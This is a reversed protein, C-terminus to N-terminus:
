QLHYIWFTPGKAYSEILEYHTFVYQKMANDPNIDDAYIVWTPKKEVLYNVVVDNISPNDVCMWSQSIAYPEGCGFDYQLYIAANVDLCFVEGDQFDEEPITESILAFAAQNKSYSADELGVSYYCIVFAVGTCVSAVLSIVAIGRSLKKGLGQHEYYVFFCTLDLALLPIASLWYNLARAFYVNVVGSVMSAIFFLLAVDKSMRKRLYRWLFASFAMWLVVVAMYLYRMNDLHNGVYAFNQFFVATIMADFFHYAFAFPLVIAYPIAFGLLTLLAAFLLAFDHKHGLYYVFYYLVGGLGWMAEIARSNFALSAELGAFFCAVFLTHNNENLTGKIFFYLMIAVFPMMWEGTHNGARLLIMGLAYFGSVLFASRRLIGLKRLSLFLFYVTVSAFLCELLFVGTTGGLFLGAANIAFCFLGKQDYFGLYPIKGRLIEEGMFMFWNSDKDIADWQNGAFLPSTSIASFLLVVFSFTLSFIALFLRPSRHYLRMFKQLFHTNM